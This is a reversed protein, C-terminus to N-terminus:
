YKTILMNPKLKLNKFDHLKAHLKPYISWYLINCAANQDRIIERKAFDSYWQRDSTLHKEYHYNTGFIMQSTKYCDVDVLTKGHRYFSQLLEQHLAYPKILM